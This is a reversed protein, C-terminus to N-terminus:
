AKGEDLNELMAFVVAAVQILEKRYEQMDGKAYAEFAEAVEEYLINDWGITGSKAAEECKEKMLFAWESASDDDPHFVPPHSRRGWKQVQKAREGVVQDYINDMRLYQECEIEDLDNSM